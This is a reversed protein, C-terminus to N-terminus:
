IAIEEALILSELLENWESKIRISIGELCDGGTTLTKIFGKQVGNKMLITGWEPLIPATLTENLREVLQSEISNGGIFQLIYVTEYEPVWKGPIAQNTVVCCHHSDYEPMPSFVQTFKGNEPLLYIRGKVTGLLTVLKNQLITAIVSKISTKYGVMGLYVLDGYETNGSEDYAYGSVALQVNENVVHPAGTQFLKPKGSTDPIRTMKWIFVRKGTGALSHNLASLIAIDEMWIEVDSFTFLEGDITMTASKSEEDLVIEGLQLPNPDALQAPIDAGSLPFFEYAAAESNYKYYGVLGGKGPAVLEGEFKTSGTRTHMMVLGLQQIDPLGYESRFAEFMIKGQKQLEIIKTIREKKHTDEFVNSM